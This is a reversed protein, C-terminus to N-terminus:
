IPNTDSIDWSLSNTSHASHRLPLTSTDYVWLNTSRAEGRGYIKNWNKKWTKFLFMSEMHTNCDFLALMKTLFIYINVTVVAHKIQM